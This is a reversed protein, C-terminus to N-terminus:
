RGDRKAWLVWERGVRSGDSLGWWWVVVLWRWGIVELVNMWWGWIAWGLGCLELIGVYSCMKNYHHPGM